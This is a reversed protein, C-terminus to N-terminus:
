LTIVTCHEGPELEDESRYHLSTPKPRAHAGTRQACGAKQVWPWGSFPRQAGGGGATAAESSRKWGRSFELKAFFGGLYAVAYTTWYLLQLHCQSGVNKKPQAKLLSFDIWVSGRWDRGRRDRWRYGEREFGETEYGQDTQNSFCLSYSLTGCSHCSSLFIVPHCSSLCSSLCLIISKPLVIFYQRFKKESM